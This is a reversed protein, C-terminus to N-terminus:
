LDSTSMVSSNVLGAVRLSLRLSICNGEILQPWLVERLAPVLALISSVKKIHARMEDLLTQAQKDNPDARKQYDAQLLLQM